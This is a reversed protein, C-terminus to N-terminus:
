GGYIADGRSYEFSEDVCARIKWTAGDGNGVHRISYIVGDVRIYGQKDVAALEAKEVMVSVETKAGQGDRDDRRDSSIMFRIGNVTADPEIVPDADDSVDKDSEWYDVVVGFESNTGSIIHAMDRALIDQFSM